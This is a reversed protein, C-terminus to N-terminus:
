RPRPPHLCAPHVENNTSHNHIQNSAKKHFLSSLKSPQSLSFSKLKDGGDDPHTPSYRRDNKQGNRDVVFMTAHTSIRWTTIQLFKRPSRDAFSSCRGEQSTPVAARHYQCLRVEHWAADVRWIQQGRSSKRRVRQQSGSPLRTQAM